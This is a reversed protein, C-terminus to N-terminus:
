FPARPPVPHRLTTGRPNEEDCQGESRHSCAHPLALQPIGPRGAADGVYFSQLADVAVGEGGKGSCAGAAFDACVREWMGPAPKRLANSGYAAYFALPMKLAQQINGVKGGARVYAMCFVVTRSCPPPPPPPPTLRALSAVLLDTVKRQLERIGTARQEDRKNGLGQALIFLARVCLLWARARACSHASQLM